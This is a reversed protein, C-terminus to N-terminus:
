FRLSSLPVLLQQFLSHFSLLYQRVFVALITVFDTTTGLHLSEFTKATNDSAKLFLTCGSVGLHCHFLDRLGSFRLRIWLLANAATIRYHFGIANFINGIVANDQIIFAKEHLNFICLGSM